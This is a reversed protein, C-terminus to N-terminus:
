EIAQDPAIRPSTSPSAGDCWHQVLTMVVIPPHRRGGALPGHGDPFPLRHLAAFGHGSVQKRLAQRSARGRRGAIRGARKVPNHYKRRVTAPMQEASMTVADFSFVIKAGPLNKEAAMVAALALM